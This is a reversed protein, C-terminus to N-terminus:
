DRGEAVLVSWILLGAAGALFIATSSAAGSMFSAFGLVACFLASCFGVYRPRIM